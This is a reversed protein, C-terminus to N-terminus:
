AASPQQTTLCHQSVFRSIEKVSILAQAPSYLCTQASVGDSFHSGHIVHMAKNFLIAAYEESGLSQVGGVGSVGGM